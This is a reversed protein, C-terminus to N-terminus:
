DLGGHHSATEVLEPRLEALSEITVDALELADSAPPFDRNPVTILLMRAAHAARLGNTSDEVAACRSPEAGV